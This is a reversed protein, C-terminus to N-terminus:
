IKCCLNGAGVKYGTPCVGGVAPGICNPDSWFVCHGPDLRCGSPCLGNIPTGCDGFTVRTCLTEVICGCPCVGNKAMGCNDGNAGLGVAILACLLVIFRM